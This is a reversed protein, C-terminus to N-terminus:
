CTCVRFRDKFTKYLNNWEDNMLGRKGIDGKGYFGNLHGGPNSPSRFIMEDPMGIKQRLIGTIWVDDVPLPDVTRSLEYLQGVVRVSTTYFGGHCYPPFVTWRYLLKSLYWKASEGRMPSEKPGFIFGCMIPFEPWKKKEIQKFGNDVDDKLGGLNVMFDDDSSSYLYDGPLNNSAWQMGALTKQAINKYDDPGDFQLIDGFREQEEVLINNRGTNEIKGVVFVVHFRAPGVSGVSGWTRRLIGRRQFNGVTTKVFIVMTWTKNVAGMCETRACSDNEIFIPEKLFTLPPKITVYYLPMPPMTVTVDVLQTSNIVKTINNYVIRTMTCLRTNLHQDHFFFITMTVFIACGAMPFFTKWATSPM